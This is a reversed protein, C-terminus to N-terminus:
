STYARDDQCSFAGMHDPAGDRGLPLKERCTLSAHATQKGCGSNPRGVIDAHSQGLPLHGIEM